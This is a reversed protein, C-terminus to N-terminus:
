NLGGKKINKKEREVFHSFGNMILIIQDHIIKLDEKKTLSNQLLKEEENLRFRYKRMAELMDMNDYFHSEIEIENEM